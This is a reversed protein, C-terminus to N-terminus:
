LTKVSGKKSSLFDRLAFKNGVPKAPAAVPKPAIAPSDLLLPIFKHVAQKADHLCVPGDRQMSRKISDFLTEDHPAEDDLPIVKIVQLKEMSLASIAQYAADAMIARQVLVRTAEVDGASATAGQYKTLLKPVQVDVATKGAECVIQQVASVASRLAPGLSAFGEERGALPLTPEFLGKIFDKTIDNSPFQRIGLNLRKLPKAGSIQAIGDEQHYEIIYKAAEALYPALLESIQDVQPANATWNGKMTAIIEDLEDSQEIALVAQLSAEALLAREPVGPLKAEKGSSITEAGVVYSVLSGAAVSVFQGVDDILSSEIDLTKTDIQSVTKLAEYFPDAEETDPAEVDVYGCDSDVAPAPIELEPEEIAPEEIIPEEIAPEPVTPEEFVPEVCTPEPIEPQVVEAEVEAEPEPAPTPAEHGTCNTCHTVSVPAPAAPEEQPVPEPASTVRALPQAVHIFAIDRSRREYGETWEASFVVRQGYRAQIDSTGRGRYGFYCKVQTAAGLQYEADYVTESGAVVLDPSIQLGTGIKWISDGTLKNAFRAEIKVISHAMGTDSSVPDNPLSLVNKEAMSESVQQFVSSTFDSATFGTSNFESSHLDCSNVAVEVQPSSTPQDLTWAAPRGSVNLTSTM